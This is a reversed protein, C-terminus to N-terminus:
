RPGVLDPGGDPLSEVDLRQRHAARWRARLFGAHHSAREPEAQIAEAYLRAAESWHGSRVARLAGDAAEQGTRPREAEDPGYVFAEFV